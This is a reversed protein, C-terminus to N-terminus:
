DLDNFPHLFHAISNSYYRLIDMEEPSAQYLQDNELVVHRLTLMRLGVEVTYDRDSRPIYVRAGKKELEEILSQVRGKIELDSFNKKPNEAFVSAILPVPAVPILKSVKEM